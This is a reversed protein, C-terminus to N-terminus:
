LGPSELDRLDGRVDDMTVGAVVGPVKLFGDLEYRTELGPLRRLEAKTVRGARYEEVAVGKLVRRSLDDGSARLRKALDDPIEVTVRM